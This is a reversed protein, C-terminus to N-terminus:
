ITELLRYNDNLENQLDDYKTKLRCVIDPDNYTTQDSLELSIKEMEMEAEEIMKILADPDPKKVSSAAKLSQIRVQKKVTEQEAAREAALRKLEDKKYRYYTYDGSYDQLCGNEFELIREVTRDLFYRDHSVIIVTGPYSELADELATRGTIDLHNTPEDFLLLNNQELLLKVLMLRSKEGGSLVEIKKWVDDGIFCFRGLLTRAEEESMPFAQRIEEVMNNGPNLTMQLQDFYGVSLSSGQRVSGTDSDLFGALMKLLTSKGCGNPGIIGICEGKRVTFDIGSFVKRGGYTKSAEQVALVMEGSSHAMHFTFHIELDKDPAEVEEMRKLISARGRAQRAKIGAKFRRIYEEMKRVKERYKEYDRTRAVIEEEKQEQYRTYNGKYSSVKGGSLELIRSAFRDLFYRDHSVALVTGPYDELFDELWQCADLDLHNTPEDLLLLDPRSLLLRALNARTKEGGSFFATEANLQDSSFGLGSAVGRVRSEIEYGNQSEFNERLENYEHMVADLREADNFVEPQAMLKEQEQMRSWISLLDAFVSMLEDRLTRGPQFINDQELYGVTLGRAFVIEGSDQSSRGSLIDLLTSKGGGNAGVMGVKEGAQMSFSAGLLVAEAGFSKYIQLMQFVNM